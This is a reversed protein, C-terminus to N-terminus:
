ITPGVLYESVGDVGSQDAAIKTMTNKLVKLEVDAKRLQARLVTFEKVTIGTYDALVVSKAQGLKGKIDEVQQEKEKRSIM